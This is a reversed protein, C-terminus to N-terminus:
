KLIPIIYKCTKIGKCLVLLGIVFINVVCLTYFSIYSMCTNTNVQIYICTKIGNSFFPIVIIHCCLFHLFFDVFYRGQSPYIYIEVIPVNILKPYIYNQNEDAERRRVCMFVSLTM